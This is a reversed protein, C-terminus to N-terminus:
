SHVLGGRFDNPFLAKESRNIRLVDDGSNQPSFAVFSGRALGNIDQRGVKLSQNRLALRSRTKPSATSCKELPARMQRSLRKFTTRGKAGKHSHWSHIRFTPHM